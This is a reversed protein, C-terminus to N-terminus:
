QISAKVREAKVHETLSLPPLYAGKGLDGFVSVTMLASSSGILTYNTVIEWIELLM